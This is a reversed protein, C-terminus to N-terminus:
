SRPVHREFTRAARAAEGCIDLGHVAFNRPSVSFSVFGFPTAIAIDCFADDADGALFFQTAERGTVTAPEFDRFNPNKTIDSFAQDASYVQLRFTNGTWECVKWGPQAVGAVDRRQTSPDYGNASLEENPIGGDCPNWIAADNTSSTSTPTGSKSDQCGVLVCAALVLTSIAVARM